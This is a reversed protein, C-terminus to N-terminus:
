TRLQMQQICLGIYIMHVVVKDVPVMVPVRCAPDM